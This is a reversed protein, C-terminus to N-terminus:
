NLRSAKISQLRKWPAKEVDSTAAVTANGGEADVSPGVGPVATAGTGPGRQAVAHQRSVPQTGLAFATGMVRLSNGAAPDGDINM